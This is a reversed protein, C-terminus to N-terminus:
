LSATFNTWSLLPSRDARVEVVASTEFAVKADNCDDEGLKHGFGDIRVNSAKSSIPSL